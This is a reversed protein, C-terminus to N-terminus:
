FILRNKLPFFYFLFLNNSIQNRSRKFVPSRLPVLYRLKILEWEEASISYSATRESPLLTRHGYGCRLLLWFVLLHVIALAVPNAAWPVHELHSAKETLTMQTLWAEGTVGPANPQCVQSACRVDAEVHASHSELLTRPSFDTNPSSLEPPSSGLILTAALHYAFRGYHLVYNSRSYKLLIYFPTFPKKFNFFSAM